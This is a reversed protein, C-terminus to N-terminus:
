FPGPSAAYILHLSGSVTEESLAVSDRILVSSSLDLSATVFWLMRKNTEATPWSTTTMDVRPGTQDWTPAVRSSTESGKLIQLINTWRDCSVVDCRRSQPVHLKACHSFSVLSKEKAPINAQLTAESQRRETAVVIRVSASLHNIISSGPPPEEYLASRLGASGSWSRPGVTLGKGQPASQNM